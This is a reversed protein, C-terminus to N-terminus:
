VFVVDHRLDFASAVAALRRGTVDGLQNRLAAPVLLEIVKESRRLAIQSLLGPAGGSLNYALRLSTGLRRAFRQADGDTITLATALARDKISSDYRWAMTLALTARQRHDMGPAPLQLVREYAMIARYDPHDDWAIDSLHCAALRLIRESTSEGAFIPTLWNFIEVPSLAFRRWSAGEDEAFAILPHRAKEADPLQSFFYGERLGFASFVIQKPKLAVLLCELALAALPLSELRRKSVGATKELSKLSQNAIIHALERAQDAAIAYQHIIHLPYDTKEMHLRAFARWAGGVPYFTRGRFRELWGVGAIAQEVARRPDRGATLLRLPGIPLTTSPGLESGSLGVLELSGGGLDGMVGDVTPIGCMVGMGSLRAEEEGSIIRTPIGTLTEIRQVFDTGDAADRVAATALLDLRTVKMNRALVAFREINALAMEVGPAYLRGTVDLERALGCLVKENFVPLPARNARAYVVLRISNSGIDIIAVRGSQM